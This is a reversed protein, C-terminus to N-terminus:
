IVWISVTFLDELQPNLFHKSIGYFNYIKGQSSLTSFSPFYHSIHKKLQMINDPKILGEANASYGALCLCVIHNPVGLWRSVPEAGDRGSAEQISIKGKIVHTIQISHRLM